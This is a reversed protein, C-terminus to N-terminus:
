ENPNKYEASKTVVLNSTAKAILHIGKYLECEANIITKGLRIIRTRATIIDGLKAPALFDIYLNSSVYVNPTYLSYVTAGIVEDIIFSIMGGHLTGVPNTMEPRVEIEAEISGKEVKTLVSGLWNGAPSPSNSVKKGILRRLYDLNPNNM